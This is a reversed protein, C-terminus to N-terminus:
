DDIIIKIPTTPNIKDKLEKKKFKKKEKM